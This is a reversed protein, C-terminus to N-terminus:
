SSVCNSQWSSYDWCRNLWMTQSGADVVLHERDLSGDTWVSVRCKASVLLIVWLCHTFFFSNFFSILSDCCVLLIKCCLRYNFFSSHLSTARQSSLLLQLWLYLFLTHANITDKTLFGKLPRQHVKSLYLFSKEM